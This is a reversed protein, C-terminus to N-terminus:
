GGQRCSTNGSEVGTLKQVLWGNDLPKGGAVREAVDELYKRTRQLHIVNKKKPKAASYQKGDAILVRTGGEVGVVVFQAGAYKGQRVLVIDGVRFQGESADRTIGGM